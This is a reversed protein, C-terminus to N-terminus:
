SPSIGYIVIKGKREEAYYGTGINVVRLANTQQLLNYAERSSLVTTGKFKEQLLSSTSNEPFKFDSFPVMKYYLPGLDWIDPKDAYVWCGKIKLTKTASYEFRLSEPLEHPKIKALRGGWKYLMLLVLVPLTSISYHQKQAPTFSITEPTYPDGEEDKPRPIYGQSKVEVAFLDGRKKVIYDSYNWLYDDIKRRYHKLPSRFEWLGKVSPSPRHQARIVEYGMEQLLLEAALQFKFGWEKQLRLQEDVSGIIKKSEEIRM